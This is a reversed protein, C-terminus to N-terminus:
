RVPPGAAPPPVLQIVTQFKVPTAGKFSM